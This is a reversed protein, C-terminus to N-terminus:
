CLVREIIICLSLILYFVIIFYFKKKSIGFNHVIDSFHKKNSDTNEFRELPCGNFLVWLLPPILVFLHLHYKIILKIPLFPLIIYFITIIVHIIVILNINYENFINM